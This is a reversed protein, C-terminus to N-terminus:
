EHFHEFEIPFTKFPQSVDVVMKIRRASNISQGVDKIENVKFLLVIFRNDAKFRL